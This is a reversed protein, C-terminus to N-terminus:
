SKLPQALAWRPVESRIHDWVSAPALAGCLITLLERFPDDIHQWSEDDVLPIGGRKYMGILIHYAIVVCRSAAAAHRGRLIQQLPLRTVSERVGEMHAPCPCEVWREM